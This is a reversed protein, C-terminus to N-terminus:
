ESIVEGGWEALRSLLEAKIAPTPTHHFMYAKEDKNWGFSNKYKAYFQKMWETRQAIWPLADPNEDTNIFEFKVRLSNDDQPAAPAGFPPTPSQAPTKEWPRGSTSPAPSAAGKEWPRAPAAPGPASTPTEVTGGLGGVNLDVIAKGTVWAAGAANALDAIEEALKYKIEEVTEGSVNIHVFTYPRGTDIGLQVEYTM